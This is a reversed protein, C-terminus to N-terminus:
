EAYKVAGRPKYNAMDDYFWSGNYFLFMTGNWGYVTRIEGTERHKVDFM